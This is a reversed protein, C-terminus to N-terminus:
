RGAGGDDAPDVHPACAASAKVDWALGPQDSLADMSWAMLTCFAGQNGHVYVGAGGGPAIRDCAAVGTSTRSMM